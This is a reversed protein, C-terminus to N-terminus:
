RRRILAAAIMAVAVAVYAGVEAPPMRPRREALFSMEFASADQSESAIQAAAVVVRGEGNMGAVRLVAHDPLAGPFLAGIDSGTQMHADVYLQHTALTRGHLDDLAVSVDLPHGAVEVLYFKYRMGTPAIGQMTTSQGNGIAFSAPVAAFSAGISRAVGDAALHSYTRATAVMDQTSEVRIAGQSANGELAADMTDSVFTEGAAIRLRRTHPHANARSAEYFTLTVDAAHTGLNTLWLSTDFLRGDSGSSRGVVPLILDRGAYAARLPLVPLLVIVSLFLVRRM